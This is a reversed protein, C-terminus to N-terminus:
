RGNKNELKNIRSKLEEIEVLQVLNPDNISNIIEQKTPERNLFEKLKNKLRKHLKIM